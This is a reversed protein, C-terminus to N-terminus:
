PNESLSLSVSVSVSISLTQNNNTEALPIGVYPKRATKKKRQLRAKQKSIATLATVTGNSPVAM